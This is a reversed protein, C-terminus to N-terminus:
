GCPTLKSEDPLYDYTYYETPDVGVPLSEVRELVDQHQEWAEPTAKGIFEADNACFLTKTSELEKMAQEPDVDPFLGVLADIAAQPEELADAWGKLSAAVFGRAVDPNDELFSDAALISTSVTAVGHEYFPFDVTEVGRDSLQIGYFDMSGLIADVNGELLQPVLAEKPTGVIEVKDPDIDNAELLLPLLPAEAAGTATAVSKGELDQLTEIGSDALATVQAPPSQYLTSIVTLPADKAILQTVPVADAYAITANGAAALQATTASGNGPIITVFLGEDEYYGREKALAFGANFGGPVWNLQFHVQTPGNDDGDDSAPGATDDGGCATVMLTVAGLVSVLRLVARRNTEQM